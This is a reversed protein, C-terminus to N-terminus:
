NNNNSNNNSHNNFNRVPSNSLFLLLDAGLDDNNNNSNNSNNSNNNNGKNPTTFEKIKNNSSKPTMLLNSQLSGRDSNELSQFSNIQQENQQIQNSSLDQPQIQIQMQMQMDNQVQQQSLQVNNNNNNVKRKSVSKKKKQNQIQQQKSKSLKTNASFLDEQKQPPTKPPQLHNINNNNNLSNPPSQLLSGRTFQYPSTSNAYPSSTLGGNHIKKLPSMMEDDFNEYLFNRNSETSRYISSSKRKLPSIIPTLASISLNSNEFNFNNRTPTVLKSNQINSIATATINNTVDESLSKSPSSQPSNSNSSNNNYRSYLNQGDAYMGQQQQQDRVQLGAKSLKEKLQRTMKAIEVRKLIKQAIIDENSMPSTENSSSPLYYSQEPSQESM